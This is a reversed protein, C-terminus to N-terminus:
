SRRQRATALVGLFALGLLVVASPEPIIYILDVAGLDGGGALAGSAILDLQVFEKGLGPQAVNGFCLSGFSTGFTSKFIGSDGDSDFNATDLHQAPDGTFIGTESEIFIATLETDYALVCVRGNGANYEISARGDGEGEEALAVYRGLLYKGANLAAIIDIQNFQGDGEPPNGVSGGPAGDWDGEGWSAAQGTLYKAAIQVKVLDLLDFQL